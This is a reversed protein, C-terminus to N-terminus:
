QPTAGSPRFRAKIACYLFAGFSGAAAFYMPGEYSLDPLAAIILLSFIPGLISSFSIVSNLLGASTAKEPNLDMMWRLAGVYLLAWSLGLILQTILFLPFTDILTFSLAAAGTLFLGTIFSTRPKLRDGILFMAAFQTSANTAQVIGLQFMDLGLEEKLFIPWLVWISAATSHRVMYPFLVSGNRAILKFPLLPVKRKVEPVRPLFTTILFACFLLGSGFFFVYPLSFTNAIYGSVPLAAAWGLAGFASFRGLKINGEFAYAALAAPFMGFGIGALMRFLILSGDTWAMGQSFTFITASILGIRLMLRRGYRDAARGFMYSSLFSSIAYSIAILSVEFNTMGLERAFIPIFTFSALFAGGSLLQLAAIKKFM